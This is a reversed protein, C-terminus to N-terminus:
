QKSTPDEYIQIRQELEQAYEKTFRDDERVSFRSAKRLSQLSERFRRLQALAYGEIVLYEPRDPYKKLLPEITRLGQIPREFHVYLYALNKRALDNEAYFLIKKYLYISVQERSKEFYDQALGLLLNVRQNDDLFPLGQAEKLYSAASMAIANNPKIGIATQLQSVADDRSREKIFRLALQYHEEQTLVGLMSDDKQLIQPDESDLPELFPNSQRPPKQSDTIRETPDKKPSNTQVITQAPPEVKSQAEPSVDVPIDQVFQSSRNKATKYLPMLGEIQDLLWDRAPDNVPAAEYAKRLYHIAGQINGSDKLFLGMSTLLPTHKPDLDFAKKFEKGAEKLDRAKWKALGKHYHFEFWETKIDGTESFIQSSRTFNKQLYFYWALTHLAPINRPYLNLTNQALEKAEGELRSYSLKLYALMGMAYPNIADMRLCDQLFNLAQEPQNQALLQDVRDKWKQARSQRLEEPMLAKSNKKPNSRNEWKDWPACVSEPSLLLLALLVFTHRLSIM